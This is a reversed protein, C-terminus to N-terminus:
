RLWQTPSTDTVSPAFPDYMPTFPSATYMGGHGHSATSVELVEGGHGGGELEAGVDGDGLAGVVASVVFLHLPLAEGVDAGGGDLGGVVEGDDGPGVKLDGVGCEVLEKDEAEVEGFDGARGGHLPGLPIARRAECVLGSDDRREDARVEGRSVLRRGVGGVDVDVGGHVRSARGDVGM